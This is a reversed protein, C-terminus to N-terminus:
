GSKEDELKVVTVVTGEVRVAKVRDGVKLPVESRVTWDESAINATGFFPPNVDSTIYGEKGVVREVSVAKERKMVGERLRILYLSGIFTVAAVIGWSAYQLPGFPSPSYGGGGAALLWIGFIALAIGALMSFGHGTKVELFILAASAALIVFAAPQAGILQAGLFGLAMLIAGAVSLVVSAHYLDLLIAISGLLILFGDVTPDSLFSLFQDYVSPRVEFVQAGQLGIQSLVEQPTNTRGDAIHYKIAEDATYAEDQTVMLEAATVNRGYKEAFSKMYSLMFSETHNQELETGGIVIPTSSGIASGDGMYIGNTSMAIYSGASAAWGSPEVFTYFRIGKSQAVQIMGIIQQMNSLLGGPTNMAIIVTTANLSEARAISDHILQQSGPDVGMSFDVVVVSTAQTQAEASSVYLLILVLSLLLLAVPRFM